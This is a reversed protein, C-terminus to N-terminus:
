DASSLHKSATAVITTRQAPPPMALKVTPGRWRGHVAARGERKRQAGATSCCRTRLQRQSGLERKCDPDRSATGPLAESVSTKLRPAARHTPQQRLYHGGCEAVTSLNLSIQPPRASCDTAPVKVPMTRAIFSSASSMLAALTLTVPAGPVVIGDGAPLLCAKAASRLM